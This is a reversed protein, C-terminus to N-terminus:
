AEPAETSRYEPLGAHRARRLRVPQPATSEREVLCMPLVIEQGRQATTGDILSFLLDIAARRQERAPIELRTLWPAIADLYEGTGTGIQGLRNREAETMRNAVSLM